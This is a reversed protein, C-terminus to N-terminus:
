FQFYIFEQDSVASTAVLLFLLSYTVGRLVWPSHGIEVEDRHRWTAVQLVLLPAVHFLLWRAPGAWDAEGAGAGRALAAFWGAMQGIDQSRFIVWGALTLLGMLAMGTAARFPGPAADEALRRLPALARYLILLLGHYAGWLAFTWNAGHWLGALLMTLALNRLTRLRGHRNGGLPIYVYDRFWSSLTIHWRRWFESPGRAFYPFHFNHTLHIGLLRASGRAIDSYGSFDGYIQFAFAGVGLLAWPANLATRPDFAYDALLACNDAVFVKKFLGVLILRLGRHFNGTDWVAPKQLQPLLDHSREIPGAVLQPFFALYTAYTIFDGTPTTRGRWVDVTYSLTQFTYFSIGVPLIINLTTWGPQWGLAGCLAAASDAFFNFYKFLGLLGLNVALSLLLFGRARQPVPRRWLVAYVATFVVPFACASGIAPASVPNGTGAALAFAGLWAAPLCTTALVRAPARREGALALGCFFDTTTSTLLLALFRADWAGYFVYSALFLLVIRGRHPLRWYLAFVLPLFLAYPWSVFSM